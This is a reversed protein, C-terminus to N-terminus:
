KKTEQPGRFRGSKLVTPVLNHYNSLGNEFIKTTKFTTKRNILINDICTPDHSQFSTPKNILHCMVHFQMFGNLQPNEVTMNFNELTM